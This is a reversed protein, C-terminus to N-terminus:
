YPGFKSVCCNAVNIPKVKGTECRGNSKMNVPCKIPKEESKKTPTPARNYAGVAAFRNGVKNQSSASVFFKTNVVWSFVLVVCVVLSVFLANKNIIM